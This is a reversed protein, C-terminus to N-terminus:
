KMEEFAQELEDINTPEWQYVAYWTRSLEIGCYGIKVQSIADVSECLPMEIPQLPHVYSAHFSTKGRYETGLVVSIRDEHGKVFQAEVSMLAQMINPKDLDHDVGKEEALNARLGVPTVTLGVVDPQENMFEIISHLEPQKREFQRHVAWELPWDDFTVIEVVRGQMRFPLQTFGIVLVVAM